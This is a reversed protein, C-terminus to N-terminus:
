AWYGGLGGARGAGGRGAGGGGARRTVCESLVPVVVGGYLRVMYGISTLPSIVNQVAPVGDPLAVPSYDDLYMVCGKFLSFSTDLAVFEDESLSYMDEVSPPVCLEPAEHRM